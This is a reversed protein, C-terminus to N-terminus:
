ILCSSDFVLDQIDPKHKLLGTETLSEIVKKLSSEEVKIEEAWKTISLWTKVDNIELDYFEAIKDSLLEIKFLDKLSNHLTKLMLKITQKNSYFYKENAVLMFCPWPTPIQDALHFEGSDVLPKTMFKEWFFLDAKGEALAKRAGSINGVVEMQHDNLQINHQKAHVYAMLHSGSGFRSIAYRYDSLKKQDYDPKSSHIGWILPTEVYSSVIKFPAGGAIEKVAGETLLLAMDIEDAKLASAMAGTGGPFDKWILNIDHHSFHGEDLAYKWPYNFHEPVGGIRLPTM